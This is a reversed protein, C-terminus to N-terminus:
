DIDFDDLRAATSTPDPTVDIVMDEDPEVPAAPAATATKQPRPLAKPENTGIIRQIGQLLAGATQLLEGKSKGKLGLDIAVNQHLHVHQHTAAGSGSPLPAADLKGQINLLRELDEVGRFKIKGDSFDQFWKAITVGVLRKLRDANDAEQSAKEVEKSVDAQSVEREYIRSQWRYTASWRSVTKFARNVQDAVKSLSRERGMKWYIDFGTRVEFPESRSARANALSAKPDLTDTASEPLGSLLAEEDRESAQTM